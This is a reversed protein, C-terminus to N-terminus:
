PAAPVAEWVRAPERRWPAPEAPGPFEKLLRWRGPPVESAAPICDYCGYHPERGGGTVLYGTGLAAIQQKRKAPDADLPIFHVGGPAGAPTWLWYGLQMDSFVPKRPLGAVFQAVARGDGFAARTKSAVSVSTWSSSILVGALLGYAVRPWRARLSVVYGTLLLVMPYVLAHGHRVNRFMSVWVGDIRNMQFQMACFVALFWVWVEKSSRLGLPWALLACLVLLHPYLAHARDGLHNRAFLMHPYALFTEWTLRHFKPADAQRLGGLWMDTEYPGFPGGTLAISGLASLGFLLTAVGAFTSVEPRLRDRRWWAIALLAPAVAVAAVKAHYALFLALASFFFLRRKRTADGADTARLFLLVALAAFFSQFLDNAFMTSWAFDVPHVVLLLAAIIGGARGWLSAGFVYLLGIGLTSIVTIPLILAEETIGLLRCSVATPLWWTARYGYANALVGGKVISEIALRFNGDDALGYGSWWALRLGLGVLMLGLMLGWDLPALLRPAPAM